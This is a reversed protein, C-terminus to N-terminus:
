LGTYFQASAHKNPPSSKVSAKWMKRLTGNDGGGGGDHSLESTRLTIQGFRIPM